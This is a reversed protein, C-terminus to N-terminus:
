SAERSPIYAALEEPLGTALITAFEEIPVPMKKILWECSLQVSGFIYLKLLLEIRLPLRGGGAMLDHMAEFHIRSVHNLFSNQGSTNKIANILFRRNDASYNLFDLIADRLGYESGIRTIINKVPKAYIWVILDYKDQFHNYFTTKTLGCHEVIDRITIKDVSKVNSLAIFSRAILDKTSARDPM